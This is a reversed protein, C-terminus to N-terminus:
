ELEQSGKRRWARGHLEVRWTSEQGDGEKRRVADMEESKLYVGLPWNETLTRDVAVITEPPFGTFRLFSNPVLSVLAHRAPQAQVTPARFEERIQLGSEPLGPSTVLKPSLPATTLPHPAPSFGRIVPDILPPPGPLKPAPDAWLPLAQPPADLQAMAALYLNRESPTVYLTAIRNPEFQIPILTNSPRVLHQHQEFASPPAPPISSSDNKANKRTRRSLTLWSRRVKSKQPTSPAVPASSAPRSAGAATPATGSRVDHTSDSHHRPCPSAKLPPSINSTAACSSRRLKTPLSSCGNASRQQDSLAARDLHSSPTSHSWQGHRSGKPRFRSAGGRTTLRILLSQRLPSLVNSDLTSHTNPLSADPQRTPHM